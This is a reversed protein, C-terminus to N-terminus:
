QLFQCMVQDRIFEGLIKQNLHALNILRAFTAFLIHKQIPFGKLIKKKQLSFANELHVTPVNIKQCVDKGWMFFKGVLNVISHKSNSSQVSGAHILPIHTSFRITTRFGKRIKKKPLSYVNKLHVNLGAVNIRLVVHKIMKLVIDREEKRVAGFTNM